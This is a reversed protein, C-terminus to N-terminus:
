CGGCTWTRTRKAQTNSLCTQICGFFLRQRKMLNSNPCEPTVVGCWLFYPVPVPVPAPRPVPVPASRPVPAPRPVPVPAPRPVPVSVPSPVPAPVSVPVFGPIPIPAPVTAQKWSAVIPATEQIRRANDKTADGM